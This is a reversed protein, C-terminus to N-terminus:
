SFELIKDKKKTVCLELIKDLQTKEWSIFMNWIFGSFFVFFFSWFDFCILGILFCLLLEFFCLVDSESRRDVYHQKRSTKMNLSDAHQKCM